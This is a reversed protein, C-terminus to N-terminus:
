EGKKGLKLYNRLLTALIKNLFLEKEARDKILSDYDYIKWYLKAIIQM